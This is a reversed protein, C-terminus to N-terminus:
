DTVLKADHRLLRIHDVHLALRNGLQGGEQAVAAFVDDPVLLSCFGSISTNDM